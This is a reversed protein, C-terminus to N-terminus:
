CTVIDQQLTVIGILNFTNTVIGQLNLGSVIGKLPTNSQTIIRTEAAGATIKVCQFSEGGPSRNPDPTSYTGDTYVVTQVTYNKGNTGQFSGGYLGGGKDAMNVATLLGLNDDYILGRVFLGALADFAVYNFNFPQQDGVLM